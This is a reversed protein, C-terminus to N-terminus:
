KKGFLGSLGGPLAGGIGQPGQLMRSAEAMQAPDMSAADPLGAKGTLSRMAQRLMGGKMKGLKKMTDAMQRQM